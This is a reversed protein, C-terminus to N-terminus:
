KKVWFSFVTNNLNWSVSSSWTAEPYGHLPSCNTSDLGLIKCLQSGCCPTDVHSIHTINLRRPSKLSTCRLWHLQAQYTLLGVQLPTKKNLNILDRYKLIDSVFHSDTVTSLLKTPFYHLKETYFHHQRGKGGAWNLQEGKFLFNLDQASHIHSEQCAHCNFQRKKQWSSLLVALM